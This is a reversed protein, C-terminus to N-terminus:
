YKWYIEKEKGRGHYLGDRAVAIRQDNDVWLSVRYLIM